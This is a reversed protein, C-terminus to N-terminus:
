PKRKKYTRSISSLRTKELTQPMKATPPLVCISEFTKLNESELMMAEWVSMIDVENKWYFLINYRFLIVYVFRKVFGKGEM